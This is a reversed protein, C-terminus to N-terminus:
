NARRQQPKNQNNEESTSEEDKLMPLSIHYRVALIRILLILIGSAIGSIETKFGMLDCACFALGGIIGAMAYIEKRFILPIDNLLVDRLVGGAAGTMTGMMIAVWYPFGLQLTKELGAITFLALGIADFLFWTNNQRVLNKRFVVVWFLAIGSFILYIPATMWFPTVGLLVDRLTGGGIATTVGVVYAGFWDFHKAAALRTGSIAFALTGIFDFFQYLTPLEM